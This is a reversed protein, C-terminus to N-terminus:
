TRQSLLKDGLHKIGHFKWHEPLKRGTAPVGDLLIRARGIMHFYLAKEM